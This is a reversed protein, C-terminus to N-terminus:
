TEGVDDFSKVDFSLLSSEIETSLVDFVDTSVFRCSLAFFDNSM